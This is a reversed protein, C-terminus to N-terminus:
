AVCSPAFGALRRHAGAPTLVHVVHLHPALEAAVVRRVQEVDAMGAMAEDV